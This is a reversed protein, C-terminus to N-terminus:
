CRSQSLAQMPNASNLVYLNNTNGAGGLAVGGTLNGNSSATFNTSALPDARNLRFTFELKYLQGM